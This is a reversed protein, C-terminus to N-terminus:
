GRIIVDPALLTHDPATGTILVSAQGVARLGCVLLCVFVCLYISLISTHTFLYVRVWTSLSSGVCMCM